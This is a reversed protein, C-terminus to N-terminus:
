APVWRGERILGHDRCTGCLLSGGITLPDREILTHRTGSEVEIRAIMLRRRERGRMDTLTCRHAWWLRAPTSDGIVAWAAYHEGGIDDGLLARVWADNEALEAAQEADGWEM